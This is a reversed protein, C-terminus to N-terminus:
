SLRLFLQGGHRFALEVIEHELVKQHKNWYDGNKEKVRGMQLMWNCRLERWNLDSFSALMQGQAVTLPLPSVQCHVDIAIRCHQKQHIQM